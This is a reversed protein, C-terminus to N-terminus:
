RAPVACSRAIQGAYTHITDREPSLKGTYAICDNNLCRSSWGMLCLGAHCKYKWLAKSRSWRARM